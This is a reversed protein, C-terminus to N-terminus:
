FMEDYPKLRYLVNVLWEKSADHKLDLGHIIDPNIYKIIRMIM